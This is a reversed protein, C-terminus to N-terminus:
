QKKDKKVKIIRLYQKEIFALIMLIMAVPVSLYLYLKSIRIGNLITNSVTMAMEFGAYCIIGAYVISFIDVLIDSVKVAKEGILKDILTVRIHSDNRIPLSAGIMSTWVLLLLTLSEGWIPVTSFLNRCIVTIFVLLVQVCLLVCCLVNIAKFIRSTIKGFM